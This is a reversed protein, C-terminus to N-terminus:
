GTPFQDETASSLFSFPTLLRSFFLSDILFQGFGVFPRVASASALQIFSKDLFFSRVRHCRAHREYDAGDHSQDPTMAGLSPLLPRDVLM